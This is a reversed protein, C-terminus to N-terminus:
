AAGTGPTPVKRVRKAAPKGDPGLEAATQALARVVAIPPVVLAVRAPVVARVVITKPHRPRPVLRTVAAWTTV